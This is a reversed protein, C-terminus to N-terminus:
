PKPHNQDLEAELKAFYAKEEPTYEGYGTPGSSVTNVAYKAKHRRAGSQHTGNKSTGPIKRKTFCDLMGAYNTPSYPSLKWANCVQQWFEVDPPKDGVTNIIDQYV